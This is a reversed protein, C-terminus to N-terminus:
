LFHPFFLSVNSPFCRLIIQEGARKFNDPSIVKTSKFYRLMIIYIQLSANMITCQAANVSFELSM